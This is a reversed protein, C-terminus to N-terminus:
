VTRGDKHKKVGKSGQRLLPRGISGQCRWAPFLILSLHHLTPLSFYFHRNWHLHYGCCKQGQKGIIKMLVYSKFLKLYTFFYRM